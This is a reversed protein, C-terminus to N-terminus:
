QKRWSGESDARSRWPPELRATRAFQYVRQPELRVPRSSRPSQYVRRPEAYDKHGRQRSSLPPNPLCLEVGHAFGEVANRYELLIRDFNDLYVRRTVSDPDRQLMGQKSLWSIETVECWQEPDNLDIGGTVGEPVTAFFIKFVYEDGGDSYRIDFSEKSLIKVDAAPIATEECFERLASEVPSEDSGPSLRGKPLSFPYSGHVGRELSNQILSKKEEMLDRFRKTANNRMSDIRENIRVLESQCRASARMDRHKALYQLDYHDGFNFNPNLLSRKEGETMCDFFHLDMDQDNISRGFLSTYQFTGHRRIFLIESNDDSRERVCAIAYSIYAPRIAVGSM